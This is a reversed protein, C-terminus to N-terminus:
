RHLGLARLVGHSRWRKSEAAAVCAARSRRVFASEMGGVSVRAIPPLAAFAVVAIGAPHPRASLLRLIL